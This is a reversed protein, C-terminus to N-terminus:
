QKLTLERQQEMDITLKVSSCHHEIIYSTGHGRNVPVIPGLALLATCRDASQEDMIVTCPTRHSRAEGKLTWEGTQSQRALASRALVVALTPNTRHGCQRLGPINMQEHM